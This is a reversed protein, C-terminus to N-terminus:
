NLPQNDWAWNWSFSDTSPVATIPLGGSMVFVESEDVALTLHQLDGSPTKDCPFGVKAEDLPGEYLLRGSPDGQTVRVIIQHAISPPEVGSGAAKEAEPSPPSASAADGLASEIAAPGASAAESTVVKAAGTYCVGRGLATATFVLPPFSDGPVLRGFGSSGNADIVGGAVTVRLSPTGFEVPREPSQRAFLVILLCVAWVLCGGGVIKWFRRARANREEISRAERSGPPVAIFTVSPSSVPSPIPLGRSGTTPAKSAWSRAGPGLAREAGDAGDAEVAAHLGALPDLDEFDPVVEPAAAEANANRGGAAKAADIGNGWKPAHPRTPQAKM